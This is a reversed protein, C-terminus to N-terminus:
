IHFRVGLEFRFNLIDNNDIYNYNYNYTYVASYYLDFSDVFFVNGLGFNFQVYYDIDPETDITDYYYDKDFAIRQIFASIKGEPRIWSVEGWQTNSGPGISAGLLQGKNTYGQKWGAWDHRYWSGAARMENTREQALNSVEISLQIINSNWQKLVQNIGIMIAQTHEPSKFLDEFNSFADNRAWEGYLEFGISPFLWRFPISIMMDKNDTPSNSTDLGPIARVLDLTDWNSLPKYYQYNFGFSFNNWFSPSYSFYSGSIWGFDNDPNDDYFESEELIGWIIRYELGGLKGINCKRSTGIDFHPFGGANDSLIINTVQGPGIIISETSFGITFNNWNYRIGSKGWSYDFYVTDGYRQLNDFVKWYDGYGNSSTTNIIDIDRNESIWVNPYIRLSLHSGMLEFGASFLSNFGKGQWIDGDNYGWAVHSNWSFWLQPAILNILVKNKKYINDKTKLGIWPGSAIEEFQASSSYTNFNLVSNEEEGLLEMSRKYDAIVSEFSMDASLYPILVISIIFVVLARTAKNM